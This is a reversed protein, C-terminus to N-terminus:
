PDRGHRPDPQAPRRDDLRSGAAGGEGGVGGREAVEDSAVRAPVRRRDARGDGPGLVRQLRGAGAEEVRDRGHQAPVADGGLVHVMGQARQAAQEVSEGRQLRGVRELPGLGRVLREFPDDSEDVTSQRAPVLDAQQARVTSRSVAVAHVNIPSSTESEWGDPLAYVRPHNLWRAPPVVANVRWARVAAWNRARALPYPSRRAIM